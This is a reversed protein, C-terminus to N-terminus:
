AGPKGNRMRNPYKSSYGPRTMAPSNARPTDYSNVNESQPMQGGIVPRRGQIQQDSYFVSIQTKRSPQNSM